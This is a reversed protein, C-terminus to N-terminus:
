ATRRGRAEAILAGLTAVLDGPECPKAFLFRGDRDDEVVLVLAREALASV